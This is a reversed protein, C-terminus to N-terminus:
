EREYTITLTGDSVGTRILQIAAMQNQGEVVLFGGPELIHGVGSTPSTGDFRYRCQGGELTAFASTADGAVNLYKASDLTVAVTSVTLTQFAMGITPRIQVIGGSM